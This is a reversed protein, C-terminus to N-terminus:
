SSKALLRMVSSYFATPAFTAREMDREPFIWPENGERQDNCLEEGRGKHNPTTKGGLMADWIAGQGRGESGKAEGVKSRVKFERKTEGGNENSWSESGEEAQNVRGNRTSISPATCFECLPKWKRRPRCCYNQM